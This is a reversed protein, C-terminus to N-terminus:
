GKGLLVVTSRPNALYHDPPDLLVEDGERLFDDGSMLSTDVVRYWGKGGPLQPVGVRQVRFDSNLIVFLQYDGIETREEGGDLQYCLTRLDPDDWQPKGLDKGFWMIDPITDGDEDRGSFFKRRQLITYRKTFAIAKKFFTLIDSNEDVFHWNFWSVENDQCYANNNGKQTRLFEDGGLVM